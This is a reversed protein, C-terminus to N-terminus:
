FGMIGFGAKMGLRITTKVKRPFTIKALWNPIKQDAGTLDDTKWVWRAGGSSSPPILMIFGNGLCKGPSVSTLVWPVGTREQTMSSLQWQTGGFFIFMQKETKGLFHGWSFIIREKRKSMAGKDWGEELLFGGNQVIRYLAWGELKWVLCPM